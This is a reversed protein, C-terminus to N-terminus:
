RAVAKVAVLLGSAEGSGRRVAARYLAALNGHGAQEAAALVDAHRGIEAEAEVKAHEAAVTHLATLVEHGERGQLQHGCPSVTVKDFDPASERKSHFSAGPQEYVEDMTGVLHGDAVRGGPLIVAQPVTLVVGPSFDYGLVPAGCAPCAVAPTEGTWKPCWDHHPWMWWVGDGDPEDATTHPSLGDTSSTM